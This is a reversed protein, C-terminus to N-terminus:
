SGGMLAILLNLMILPVIVVFYVYNVYASAPSYAQDLLLTDFESAFLMQISGFVAHGWGEFQLDIASKDSSELGMEDQLSRAYLLQMTFVNGAVLILLMTLFTGMESAVAITMQVDPAGLSLRILWSLHV